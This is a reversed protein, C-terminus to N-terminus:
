NKGHPVYTVFLLKNNKLDIVFFRKRGSVTTMDAISIIHQNSSVTVRLLQNVSFYFIFAINKLMLLM